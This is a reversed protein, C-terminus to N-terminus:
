AQRGGASSDTHTFGRRGTVDQTLAGLGLALLLRDLLTDPIWGRLMWALHLTRPVCVVTRGRELGSRVVRAALLAPEVRPLLIAALRGMRAGAFMGGDKPLGPHVSTIRVGGLGRSKLEIRLADSLGHVAWKSATYVVAGPFSIFAAGSSVNVIHGSNREMMEPLVAEMAYLLANFNVEMQRLKDETPSEEFRGRRFFAANNVLVDVRGMDKRAQEVLELVREQHSVDCRYTFLRGTRIAELRKRADELAEEALDWITVDVGERLLKESIAFGYGMAGGTVIATRGALGSM